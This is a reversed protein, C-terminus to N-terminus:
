RFIFGRYQKSNISAPAVDMM